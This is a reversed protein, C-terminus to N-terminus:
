TRVELQGCLALKDDLLVVASIIDPLQNMENCIEQVDRPTKVRNCFATAYADALAADFCAVMVADAKGFSYSHGIKGSSTCIGIPSHLPDVVLSLKGSLANGPAFLKVSLEELVDIYLDGGNEVVIETLAFREKLYSGVSQAVAGAVSAMPGTGSALSARFMSSLFPTAVGKQSIPSYSTLFTKDPYNIIENRLKRLYRAAELTFSHSDVSSPQFGIWLDSEGVSLSVSNFRTAGMRQRYTRSEYM